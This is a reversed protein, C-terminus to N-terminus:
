KGIMAKVINGCASWIEPQEEAMMNFLEPYALALNCYNALTETAANEGAPNNKYYSSGHGYLGMTRDRLKGGSIADYIDEVANMGNHAKRSAKSADQAM